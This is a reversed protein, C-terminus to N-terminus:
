LRLALALPCSSGQSLRRLGPRRRAYCRPSTTAAVDMVTSELSQAASSYRVTHHACLHISRRFYQSIGLVFLSCSWAMVVLRRRPWRLRLQRQIGGLLSDLLM